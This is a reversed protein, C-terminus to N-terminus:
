PRGAAAETRSPDASVRLVQVLRNKQALQVIIEARTVVHTTQFWFRLRPSPADARVRLTQTPPSTFQMGRSKVTVDFQVEAADGGNRITVQEYVGSRPREPQLWVEIFQSAVEQHSPASAASREWEQSQQMTQACLVGEYNDLVPAVILSALKHVEQELREVSVDKQPTEVARPIEIYHRAAEQLTAVTLPQTLGACVADIARAGLARYSEFQAEGFEAASLREHPFTAHTSAYSLVDRSESGTVLPKVYILVGNPTQPDTDSYMIDAVAWSRGGGPEPLHRFEIRVGLEIRIKRISVGVAEFVFSPDESTDVAVILGCQRRVMELIALSEVESGGTVKAWSTLGHRVPLADGIWPYLRWVGKLLWSYSRDTWGTWWSSRLNLLMAVTRLLATDNDSSGTGRGVSAAMVTGISASRIDCTSRYGSLPGGTFLRSATWPELHRGRGDRDRALNVVLFPGRTWAASSSQDPESHPSTREGLPFDIREDFWQLGPSGAGLYTRALRSRVAGTRSIENVDLQRAMVASVLVLAGAVLALQWPSVVSVVSLHRAASEALADVGTTTGGLSALRQPEAFGIALILRGVGLSLGAVVACLFLGAAITRAAMGTVSRWAARLVGSDLASRAHQGALLLVLSVLVALPVLTPPLQELLGPGIIALATLASWIVAATFVDGIRQGPMAVANKVHLSGLAAVALYPTLFVIPFLSAYLPLGWVASARVDVPQSFLSSAMWWTLLGAVGGRVLPAWWSDTRKGSREDEGRMAVIVHTCVGIVVFLAVAWRSQRSWNLAWLSALASGFVFLSAIGRWSVAQAAGERVAAGPEEARHEPDASEHLEGIGITGAVLALVTLVAAHVRAAVDLTLSPRPVSALGLANFLRALMAAISSYVIDYVRPPEADLGTVPLWVLLLAAAFVPLVVMWNLLLNRVSVIGSVWPDPSFLRSEAVLDRRARRLARVPPPEAEGGIASAALRGTVEAVGQPERRVWASLWGGLCSGMGVSSLYEFQALLGHRALGQLIGLNFAVSRADTGSLCLASAPGTTPAQTSSSSLAAREERILADASRLRTGSESDSM